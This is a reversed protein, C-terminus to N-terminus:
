FSFHLAYIFCVKELVWGGHVFLTLYVSKQVDVSYVHVSKRSPIIGHQRQIGRDKAKEWITFEAPCPLRNELRLPSNFSIKWDYIPENLASHLISADSGTSLWFQETESKLSCCVLMDKKELHDLRFIYDTFQKGQKITNQRVLPSETIFQEKGFADPSGTAVTHGWPLAPQLDAYPRVKLCQESGSLLSKWPLICSSGPDVTILFGKSSDVEEALKQRRRIWRRRRVVDVASKSSSKQTNPPWNLNQFGPCYAWGDSDVFASKDINWTSVWQWGTPLPPEFFDQM